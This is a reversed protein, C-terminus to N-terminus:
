HWHSVGSSAHIGRDYVRRVMFYATKYKSRNAAAIRKADKLNAAYIDDLKTVGDSYIVEYHYLTKM